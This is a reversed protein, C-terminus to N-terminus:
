KNDALVAVVHTHVAEGDGLIKSLEELTVWQPHSAPYRSSNASLDPPIRDEIQLLLQQDIEACKRGLTSKTLPSRISPRHPTFVYDLAKIRNPVIARCGRAKM